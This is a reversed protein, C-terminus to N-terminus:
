PALMRQVLTARLVRRVAPEEIRAVVDAKTKYKEDGLRWQAGDKALLGFKEAQAVMYDIDLVKGADGGLLGMRYGGQVNPSATKNKVVRFNMWIDTLRKLQWDKKMEEDMTEKEGTSSWLKAIVSATFKQGEGCPIVTPDGFSVGIKLREQNIWIETIPRGTFSHLAARSSTTQRAMKNVLRAALGQQWESTSKEVEASPTLAAISDLILLDVSGTYALENRLDIAEEAVSPKALIMRDPDCGLARAWAADFTGEVDLMGVRFEEFSNEAYEKCRQKFDAASEDKIKVPTYIGARVCDCSAVAVASLEGTDPDFREEVTVGGPPRRYCNACLEQALGAVRLAATTKGSSEAGRFISVHGVPVGGGLAFDFSLSGTTLRPGPRPQMRGALGIMRDGYKKNAATCLAALKSKRTSM